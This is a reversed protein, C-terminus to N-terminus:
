NYNVTVNFNSSIYTGATQAAAVHLSAGVTLDDTGSSLTGVGNPTSTFTDATMVDSGGGTITLITSAPLTIAYTYNGNGNVTFDAATVTGAAAPLTVGTGTLSRSGNPHLIVVGGASAQVAINGFNMDVNKTISIPTVITATATATATAQANSNMAFCSLVLASLIMRKM